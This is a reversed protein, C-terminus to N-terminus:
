NVACQLEIVVVEPRNNVRLPIVSNGIGRSIIMTTGNEAFMGADLEPFFGEGPLYLGGLWPLRVQGGHAHGTLVLGLGHQVYADLLEPRHSLLITFPASGQLLEPLKENMLENGEETSYASSFVPDDVGLLTVFAGDRELNVCADELVTVGRIRLGARLEDYDDLRSEHNGTVYYCPAIKVAEEAFRLAIDMDTRRSDILDGTIAILDPQAKAIMKLLKENDQGFEANHLDSIHVIRFGDFADPLKGSSITYSTQELARNAWLLWFIMGLLILLVALKHKRNKM